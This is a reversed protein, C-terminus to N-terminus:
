ICNGFPAYPVVCSVSDGYIELLREVSQECMAWTDRTVDCLLPTLGAWIAAHATAAFTFSPMLAYKRDTSTGAAERIALMLGTTACNTTLCEGVGGFLRETLAKEFRGNVPGYNTFVGSNELAILEPVLQSLPPPRPRLFPIRM